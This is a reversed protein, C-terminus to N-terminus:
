RDDADPALDFYTEIKGLGLLAVKDTPDIEAARRLARYAELWSGLNFCSVGLATYAKGYGPRAAVARRLIPLAEDYRGLRNLVEGAGRLVVANNPDMQLAMRYHRLAAEYEQLEWHALGKNAHAVPDDATSLIRDYAQVAEGFRGLQLFCDAQVCSLTIGLKATLSMRREELRSILSIAESAFGQDALWGAVKVLDSPESRWFSDELIMERLGAIDGAAIVTGIEHANM